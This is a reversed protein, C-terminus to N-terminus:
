IVEVTPRADARAIDLTEEVQGVAEALARQDAVSWPRETLSHVSLWGVMDGDRVVPALM